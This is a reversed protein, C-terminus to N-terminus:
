KSKKIHTRIDVEKWGWINEKGGNFETDKIHSGEKKKKEKKKSDYEDQPFRM